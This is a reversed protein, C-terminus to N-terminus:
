AAVALTESDTGLLHARILTVWKQREYESLDVMKRQPMKKTGRQHFLGYGVDSGVVMMHPERIDIALDTTFSRMLDGSRVLIKTGPYAQAKWRGYAPSLPKWRGSVGGEAAFTRAMNAVFRDRLVDWVPRADQVATEMAHLRRTLRKEGSFQLQISTGPM